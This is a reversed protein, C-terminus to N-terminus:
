LTWAQAGRRIRPDIIGYLFNAIFNGSFVLLASILTIGLLLPADGGLGATVAAQALGPYSFVQEVLISGGFIESISAFHLTIAPLCINRLGHRIAIARANEGRARAFLVYDSQMVEVMKERTHLAINSIGTISLTLAPLILHRLRDWISVSAADVGIPVSFGIPLVQLWVSFVMLLVLGLWFAPTSSLLLCYGKILRDLWGGEYLGSLAGLLFGLLGSLLWAALMLALSNSFRVGIVDTVSQRYLLSQGLDGRLLDKLWSVYRIHIPTDAGWHDRLRQVQEKTMSAMAASGVNHQVPDIPSLGILLFALLSVAILLTLMRLLGKLVTSTLSHKSM